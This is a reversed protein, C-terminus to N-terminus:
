TPGDPGQFVPPDRYEERKEHEDDYGDIKAQHRRIWWSLAVVVLAFGLIAVSVWV